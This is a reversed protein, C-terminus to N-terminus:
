VKGQHRSGAIVSALKAAHASVPKISAERVDTGCRRCHFLSPRHWNLTAACKENPCVSTLECQHVHCCQYLKLDWLTRIYAKGKERVCPICLRSRGRWLSIAGTMNGKRGIGLGTPWENQPLHWFSMSRLVSTDVTTLQSLSSLNSIVALYDSSKPSNTHLARVIAKLGNEAWNKEAVRLGFGLISEDEYPALRVPVANISVNM